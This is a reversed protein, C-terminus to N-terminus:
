VSDYTVHFSVLVTDVAICINNSNRQNKEIETNKQLHAPANNKCHFCKFQKRKCSKVKESQTEVGVWKECRLLFIISVIGFKMHDNAAVAFFFLFTHNQM